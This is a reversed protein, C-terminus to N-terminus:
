ETGAGRGSAPSVKWLALGSLDRDLRSFITPFLMVPKASM